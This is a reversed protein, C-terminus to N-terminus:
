VTYKIYYTFGEGNNVKLYTNGSVDDTFTGVVNGSNTVDIFTIDTFDTTTDVIYINTNGKGNVYGAITSNDCLLYCATGFFANNGVTTLSSPLKDLIMNANNYFASAEITKITDPLNINKLIPCRNFSYSGITECQSGDAFIVDTLYTANSCFSGPIRKVNAGIYVKVSGVEQGTSTVVSDSSTVNTSNFYVTSIKPCGSLMNGITTLGEPFTFTTLLKCESFAAFKLTKITSPLEVDPLEFCRYFGYDEITTLRSPMNVTNLKVCIAFADTPIVTINDSLRVETLNQCYYCVYKGISTVSDPLYLSTLGSERFAGEPISTTNALLNVKTVQKLAAFVYTNLKYTKGNYTAPLTLETESGRYDIMYINNTGGNYYVYGDDSTEIKSATATKSISLAYYGLYGNDTYGKRINLNSLNVVECLRGCGFFSVSQISTVSAPLVISRLNFCEYFAYQGISRLSDPLKVETLKTCYQFANEPINVIGNGISAYELNSCGNFADKGLSTVSDPISISQLTTVYQCFYNPLTHCRSGDEFTIKTVNPITDSGFPRFLYTIPVEVTNEFVVHLGPGNKGSDYLLYNNSILTAQRAAYDFQTLKYTYGFSTSGLATVNKPVNIRQLKSCHSFAYSDIKTITDPLLIRTAYSNSSFGSSKIETVPKDLYKEPIVIFEDRCTGDDVKYAITESGSKIATYGLGQSVSVLNPYLTYSQNITTNFSFRNTFSSDTYWGELAQTNTKDEDVALEIEPKVTVEGDLVIIKEVLEGNGDMISLVDGVVFKPYLTVKDTIPTTFDFATTCEEDVYWGDFVAREVEGAPPTPQPLLNGEKIEVSNYVDTKNAGVFTVEYKPVYIEAEVGPFVMDFIEAADTLVSTVNSAQIAEFSVHFNVSKMYQANNELQELDRPVVIEDALLYTYIDDVQKLKTKDNNDLLYYYNGQKSSWVANNQPEDNVNFETSKRLALLLAEMNADGVSETPLSFSIKARVYIPESDIAKSFKLAGDVLKTGPIVDKLVGNIGTTTESSLEVKSFTIDSQKEVSDTFYAFTSGIIITLAVIIIFVPLYKSINTFGKKKNIRGM